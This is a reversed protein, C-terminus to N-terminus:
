AVRDLTAVTVHPCLWDLLQLTVTQSYQLRNPRTVAHGKTTEIWFTADVSMLLATTDSEDRGFLFPIGNVGNDPQAAPPTVTQKSSVSLKVVREFEVGENDKRLITNPDLLTHPDLNPVNKSSTRNEDHATSLDSLDTPVGNIPFNYAPTLPQPKAPDYDRLRLTIADRNDPPIDPLPPDLITWSGNLNITAGHPISGM